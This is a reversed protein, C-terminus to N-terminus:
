VATHDYISDVVTSVSSTTALPNPTVNLYEPAGATPPVLRSGITQNGKWPREDYSLVWHSPLLRSIVALVALHPCSPSCRARQRLNICPGHRFGVSSPQNLQHVCTHVWMSVRTASSVPCHVRTSHRRSLYNRTVHFQLEGIVSAYHLRRNWM